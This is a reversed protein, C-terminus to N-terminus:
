DSSKRDIKRSSFKQAKKFRSLVRRMKIFITYSNQYKLLNSYSDSTELLNDTIVPSLLPYLLDTSLVM